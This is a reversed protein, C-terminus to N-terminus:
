SRSLVQKERWMSQALVVALVAYVVRGYWGTGVLGGSGQIVVLVSVLFFTFQLLVVPITIGLNNQLALSEAKNVTQCQPECWHEALYNAGAKTRFPGIVLDYTPKMSDYKLEGEHQFVERVSEYPPLPHQYRVGVYHAMNNSEPAKARGPVAIRVM